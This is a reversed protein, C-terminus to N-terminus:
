RRRQLKRQFKTWVTLHDDSETELVQHIEIKSGVETMIILGKTVEEKEKISIPTFPEDQNNSQTSLKSMMASIRDIKSDLVNQSDFLM